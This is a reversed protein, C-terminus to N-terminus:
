RYMPFAHLVALTADFTNLDSLGKKEPNKKRNQDESTKEKPPSPPIIRNETNRHQKKNIYNVM